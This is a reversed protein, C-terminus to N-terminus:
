VITWTEALGMLILWSTWKSYDPKVTQAVRSLIFVHYETYNIETEILERYEKDTM